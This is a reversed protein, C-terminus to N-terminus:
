RNAAKQFPTMTLDEDRDTSPPKPAPKPNPAVAFQAQIAALSDPTLTPDEGTLVALQRIQHRTFQFDPNEELREAIGAQVAAQATQLVDPWCEMLAEVNLNSLTGALLQRIAWRPNGATELLWRWAYMDSKPIDVPVRGTFTQRSRRPARAKLFNLANNAAAFFLDGNPNGRFRALKETLTEEDMVKYLLNDVEDKDYKPLTVAERKGELFRDVIEWIEPEVEATERLQAPTFNLKGPLLVHRLGTVALLARGPKILRKDDNLKTM